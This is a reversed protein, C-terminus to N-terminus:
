RVLGIKDKLLNRMEIKMENPIHDRITYDEEFVLNKDTSNIKKIYDYLEYIKKHQFELM